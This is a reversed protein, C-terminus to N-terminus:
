EKILNTHLYDLFIKELRELIMEENSSSFIMIAENNEILSTSILSVIEQERASLDEPALILLLSKMYMDKGDMGRVLCPKELHSIQFILKRVHESRCHFLGMRTGPIGLGGKRERERLTEMVDAANTLLKDEEALRVMESLTQEHSQLHYLRYVRFNNLLSDIGQQTDKLDQLVETIPRKDMKPAPSEKQATKIYHKNQTMTEINKRLFDRITTIDDESLLPTVLIYDLNIFPLRVTSIIVDYREFNEEQMEKISKVEVSDIEVIEKKIRSALMKSTGIGTPCVVLAHIPMDEERMVLASGFHLVIFAIEDDPFFGFEKFEKEVGNKIAMFLVPYKRKIEETLPNFLGMQQKIRFLSPEMHALLGQFLSFDKTLDV